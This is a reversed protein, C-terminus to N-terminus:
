KKRAPDPGGLSKIRDASSEEYDYIKIEFQLSSM